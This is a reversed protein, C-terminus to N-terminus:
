SRVESRVKKGIEITRDEIEQLSQRFNEKSAVEKKKKKM